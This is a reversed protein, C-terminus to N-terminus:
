LSASRERLLRVVLDRMRADWAAELDLELAKSDSPALAWFVHALAAALQESPCACEGRVVTAGGPLPLASWYIEYAKQDSACLLQAKEGSLTEWQLSIRTQARLACDCQAGPLRVEVGCNGCAFTDDSDSLMVQATFSEASSSMFIM